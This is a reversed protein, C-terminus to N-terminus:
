PLKELWAPIDRKENLARGVDVQQPSEIYLLLYPFNKVPWFCLDDPKLEVRM